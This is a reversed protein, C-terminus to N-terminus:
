AAFAALLRAAQGERLQAVALALRQRVHGVQMQLRAAIEDISCPGDGDLGFHLAVILADSARLGALAQAIASRMANEDAAADSSSSDDTALMDGLPISSEEDIPAELSLAPRMAIRVREGDWRLDGHTADVLTRSESAARRADRPVRVIRSQDAVARAIAQRIWHAAYTVFRAGHSPDFKEAARLLGLNGEAILDLLPVHRSRYRKAVIVVFRLNARILADVAAADGRQIRCALAMEQERTLLPTRAIERLYETLSDDGPNAADDGALM